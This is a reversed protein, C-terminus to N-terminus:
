KKAAKRWQWLTFAFATISALGAWFPATNAVFHFLWAFGVAAWSLIVGLWEKITEM